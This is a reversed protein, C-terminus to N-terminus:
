FSGLRQSSSIGATPQIFILGSGPESSPSAVPDRIVEPELWPIFFVWCPSGQLLQAAAAAPSWMSGGVTLESCPDSAVSVGWLQVLM